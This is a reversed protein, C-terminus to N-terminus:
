ISLSAVEPYQLFGKGVNLNKIEQPYYSTKITQFLPLVLAEEAIQNALESAAANQKEKNDGALLAKYKKELEDRSFGYFGNKRVFPPFFANFNPRIADEVAVVLNYAKTSSRLNKELEAPLYPLVEINLGSDSRIKKSFRVLSEQSDVNWNAFVLKGAVKNRYPACYQAPMGAIAGPMGIPLITKIDYFEKKQPFLAERLKSIPICNYIAKRTELDPHNIILFVSRLEVMNLSHQVHGVWAPVDFSPILNFDKINRNELNKDGVGRYEYFSIKNYGDAADSKRRLVVREKSVSEAYFKGLGDEIEQTRPVTPANEYASLHELYDRRPRAFRVRVCGDINAIEANPDFGGSIKQIHSFFAENTLRVTGGFSNETDPCLMYESSDLTRKWTRLIRSYYSYGDDTRLVPEHTQKLIYYTSSQAANKTTIVAPLGYLLVGWERPGTQAYQSALFGIAALSIVAAPLYKRQM